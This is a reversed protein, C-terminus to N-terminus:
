WISPGASDSGKLETIEQQLLMKLHTQMQWLRGHGIWADPWYSSGFTGLASDLRIFAYCLM